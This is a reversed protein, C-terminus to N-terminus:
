KIIHSALSIILPISIFSFLTCVGVLKAGLYSNGGYLEAFVATNTACPTACLTICIMAIDHDVKFLYMVAMVALPIAFLKIVSFIIVRIDKFIDSLKMDAILSGIIVMALPFTMDGVLDIGRFVPDPFRVKSVYIIFSAVTAIIGPNLFIKKINLHKIDAGSMTMVGHTWIFLNHIIVYIVGYFLGHEPFIVEIVPYGLYGCNMYLLGFSFVRRDSKDNVPKFILPAALAILTHIVFSIGLMMFASMLLSSQYEIHLSAIILSPGTIYALFASFAKTAHADIIKAKKAVYGAFLAIFLVILQESVKIGYLSM